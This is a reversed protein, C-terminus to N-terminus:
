FGGEVNLTTGVYTYRTGLYVGLTIPRHRESLSWEGLQYGVAVDLLVPKLDATGGVHLTCARTPISM